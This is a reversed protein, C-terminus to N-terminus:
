ASQAEDQEPVDAAADDCVDATVDVTRAYTGRALRRLRGSKVLTSLVNSITKSPDGYVGPPLARLVDRASFAGPFASV